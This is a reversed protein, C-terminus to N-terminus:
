YGAVMWQYARGVVGWLWFNGAVYLAALPPTLLVVCLGLLTSSLSPKVEPISQPNNM